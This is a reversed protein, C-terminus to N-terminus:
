LADHHGQDFKEKLYLALSLDDALGLKTMASRKHTSVTKKSRSLREAVQTVSLGNAIHRLVEVESATLQEDASLPQVKDIRGGRVAFFSHPLTAAMRIAEGLLELPASKPVFANAGARFAAYEIESAKGASFTVIILDPFLRRIRKLFHFGDTTAEPLYFDLVAADCPQKALMAAFADGSTEEVEVKFDSQSRLYAATGLAIVPHDDLVAIHMTHMPRSSLLYQRTLM